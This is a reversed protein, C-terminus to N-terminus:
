ICVDQLIEKLKMESYYPFKAATLSVLLTSSTVFPSERIRISIREADLLSRVFFDAILVKESESTWPFWFEDPYESCLWDTLEDLSIMEDSWTIRVFIDVIGGAAPDLSTTFQIAESDILQKLARRVTKSAMGTLEAIEAIQMRPDQMLCKLVKLQVRPFEATCGEGIDPTHMTHLEVSDVNDFNKMLSELEALMDSSLHEGAIIYAGGTACLLESVHFVMPNQGIRSEFDQIGETGDTRIFGLFCGAGAAETTLKVAFRTIIGSEVIKEARNKAANPSLGTKRALARYSTRCNHGLERLIAMDIKDLTIM